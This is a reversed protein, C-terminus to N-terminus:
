EKATWTGDLAEGPATWFQLEISQPKTTTLFRLGQDNLTQVDGFATRLEFPNDEQKVSSVSEWPGVLVFHYEYGTDPDDDPDTNADTVTVHGDNSSWCRIEAYCVRIYRNTLEALAATKSIGQNGAYTDVAQKPVMVIYHSYALLTPTATPRPTPTPTGAGVTPTPPQVPTATPEPTATPPIPPGPDWDRYPQETLAQVVAAAPREWRLRLANCDAMPTVRIHLWLERYRTDIDLAHAPLVVRSSGAAMHLVQDQYYVPMRALTTGPALDVGSDSIIHDGRTVVEAWAYVNASDPATLAATGDLLVSLPRGEWGRWSTSHAYVPTPQPLRTPRATPTPQITPTPYPTATPEQQQTSNSPLQQNPGPATPSILQVFAYSTGAINSPTAVWSSGNYYQHDMAFRVLLGAAPLTPSNCLTLTVTKTFTGGSDGFSPASDTLTTTYNATGDCSTGKQAYGTEGGPTDIWFRPEINASAINQSTVTDDFARLFIDATLTIDVDTAGSSTQRAQTPAAALSSTNIFQWGTRTEPTCTPNVGSGTVCRTVRVPDPISDTPPIPTSTPMLTPTGILFRDPLLEVNNHEGGYIAPLLGTVVIPTATPRPTATPMLTSVPAPTWTPWPTAKERVDLGEQQALILDVECSQTSNVYEWTDAHLFGELGYSGAKHAAGTPMLDQYMEAVVYGPRTETSFMPRLISGAESQEGEGLDTHVIVRGAVKTPTPTGDDVDRGGRSQDSESPVPTAHAVTDFAAAISVAAPTTWRATVGGYCQHATIGVIEVVATARQTKGVVDRGLSVYAGGDFTALAKNGEVDAPLYTISRTDPAVYVDMRTYVQSGAPVDIEAAGVSGIALDGSGSLRIDTATQQDAIVQLGVCARRNTQYQWGWETSTPNSQVLAVVPNDFADQQAYPTVSGNRERADNSDSDGLRSDVIIGVAVAVVILALVALMTLRMPTM